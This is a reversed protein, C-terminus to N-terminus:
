EPPQRRKQLQERLVKMARESYAVEGSEGQKIAHQIAEIMEENDKFSILGRGCYGYCHQWSGRHNEAPCFLILARKNDIDSLKLGDGVYIYGISQDRYFSEPCAAGYSQLWERLNKDDYNDENAHAARHIFYLAQRTDATHPLCFDPQHETLLWFAFKHQIMHNACSCAYVRQRSNKVLHFAIAGGILLVTLFSALLWKRHTKFFSRPKVPAKEEPEDSTM